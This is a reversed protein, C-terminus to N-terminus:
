LRKCKWVTVHGDMCATALFNQTRSVDVGLVWDTHGQLTLQCVGRETAWVRVSEDDSGTVMWQNDPFLAISNIAGQSVFAEETLM